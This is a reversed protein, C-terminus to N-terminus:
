VGAFFYNIIAECPGFVLLMFGGDNGRQVLKAFNLPWLFNLSLVLNSTKGMCPLTSAILCNDKSDNFNMSVLSDTLFHEIHQNNIFIQKSELKVTMFNCSFFFEFQQLQM